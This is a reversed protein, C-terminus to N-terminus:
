SPASPSPLALRPDFWTLIRDNEERPYTHSLDEIERYTLDAGAGALQDRAAHALEVPFLWDLAGHVLYIRRGRARELNGNAFNGPHFVGSLPALATFPVDDQLGLLLTYTAGDSLGTLLVHETDVNWRERVYSVMSRLAAADVDPGLMSWTPGTATPSLLLFRRGRAEALWTWLFDAGNGSGGHLAVVLPWARSGDYSEPVYLSFGGRSPSSGSARHLGVSVGAAPVDPDIEDLRDRFPAEVFFRSVPPLLRRLPYLSAQSRCHEHMADLIPEPSSLPALFLDLATQAARASTAMQEAVPRAEEPVAGQEFAGLEEALRARVPTLGSRIEPFRPPHLVRRATELAHLASILAPGLRSLRELFAQEEPKTM